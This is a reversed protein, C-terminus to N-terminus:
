QDGQAALARISQITILTKSGIKVRQLAGGPRLLEFLKTRGISLKACATPVDVLIPQIPEM